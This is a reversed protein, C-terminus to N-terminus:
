KNLTAKLREDLRHALEGATRCGLQPTLGEQSTLYQHEGVRGGESLPWVEGFAYDYRQATRRRVRPM